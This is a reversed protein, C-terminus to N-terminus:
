APPPKAWWLQRGTDCKDLFRGNRDTTRIRLRLWGNAGNALLQGHFAVRFHDRTGNTYRQVFHERRTFAGNAAIPTYPSYNVFPVDAIGCKVDVAWAAAAARGGPQVAVAVGFPLDGHMMSSRGYLASSHSPRRPPGSPAPDTLAVFRHTFHIHGCRRSRKVNGTLRGRAVGNRVTAKIRIALTIGHRFRHRGTGTLRTGSWRGAGDVVADGRKIGHCIIAEVTAFRVTGSDEQVISIPVNSGHPSVANSGTYVTSAGASPVIMLAAGLAVAGM